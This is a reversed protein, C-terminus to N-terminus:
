CGSGYSKKITKVVIKTTRNKAKLAPGGSRPGESRIARRRVLLSSASADAVVKQEPTHRGLEATSTALVFYKADAGRLAAQAATALTAGATGSGETTHQSRLHKHILAM